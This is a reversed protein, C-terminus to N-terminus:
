RPSNGDAGRITTPNRFTLPTIVRDVIRSAAVRRRACPLEGRLGAAGRGPTRPAPAPREPVMAVDAGPVLWDLYCWDDVPGVRQALDGLGDAVEFCAM